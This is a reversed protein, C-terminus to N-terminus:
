TGGGVKVKEKEKKKQGKAQVMNIAQWLSKQSLRSYRGKWM